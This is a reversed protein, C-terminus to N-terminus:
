QFKMAFALTQHGPAYMWTVSHKCRGHFKQSAESPNYISPQGPVVQQTQM